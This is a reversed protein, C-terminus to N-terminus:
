IEIGEVANQAKPLIERVNQARWNRWRTLAQQRDQESEFKVSSAIYLFGSRRRLNPLGYDAPDQDTIYLLGALALDRIQVDAGNRESGSNRNGHISTSDDLLEELEPLAENQGYMALYFIANGIETSSPTQQRQRLIERAVDLGEPLEYLAALQLRQNESAGRSKLIWHSVLAKLVPGTGPLKAANRFSLDDLYYNIVATSQGSPDNDPHCALFLLTAMSGVSSDIRYRYGSFSNVDACRREFESIWNPQSLKLMLATESRLMEVYLKRSEPGDGLLTFFAEWGPALADPVTWPDSEIRQFSNGITNRQLLKLLRASRSRIESSESDLGADVFSFSDIGMELLKREAEIRVQFSSSGLQQMLREASAESEPGAFAPFGWLIFTTIFLRQQIM